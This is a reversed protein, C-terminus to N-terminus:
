PSGPIPPCGRVSRRLTMVLGATRASGAPIPGRSGTVWERTLDLQEARQQALDDGLLGAILQQVEDLPHPAQRDLDAARAAQAPLTAQTVDELPQGVVLDLVEDLGEAEVEVQGVQGLLLLTHSAHALAGPRDAGTARVAGDLFGHASEQALVRRLAGLREDAVERDTEHERRVGRLRPSARHEHGQSADEGEEVPEVVLADGGILVGLDAAPKALLDRQQPAGGGQAHLTRRRQVLDAVCEEEEVFREEHDCRAEIPREVSGQVACRPDCVLVGARMRPAAAVSLPRM